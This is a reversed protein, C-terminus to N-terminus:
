TEQFLGCYRGTLEVEAPLNKIGGMRPLFVDLGFTRITQLGVTDIAVKHNAEVKERLLNILECASSADFDGSLRLTLCRDPHETVRIRFNKGHREKHIRLLGVLDGM